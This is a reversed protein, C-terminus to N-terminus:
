ACIFIFNESINMVVLHLVITDELPRKSLVESSKSPSCTEFSIVLNSVEIEFSLIWKDVKM